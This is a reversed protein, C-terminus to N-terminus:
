NEDRDGGRHMDRMDNVDLVGDGNADMFRVMGAFRQNFEEQTIKGDGDADHGQFRDVMRGRMADLWLAEYEAATLAGDGDEDFERLQAARGEDIEEQSLKGDENTDFTLLTQHMGGRGGFDGGHMGNGGHMGYGGTKQYGGGHMGWGGRGGDAFGTAAIATMGLGALAAVSLAIKTNRKM